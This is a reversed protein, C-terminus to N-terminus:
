EIPLYKIELNINNEQINEFFHNKIREVARSAGYDDVNNLILVFHNIDWKCVVDGSRLKNSLIKEIYQRAKKINNDNKQKLKIDSFYSNYKRRGTRRKELKYIHKFIDKDCIYSNPM